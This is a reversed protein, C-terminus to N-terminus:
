VVILVFGNTDAFRQKFASRGAGVLVYRSQEMWCFLLSLLPRSASFPIIALLIYFNKKEGYM